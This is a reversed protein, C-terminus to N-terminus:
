GRWKSQKEQLIDGHKGVPHVVTNENVFAVNDRLPGHVGFAHSFLSSYFLVHSHRMVLHASVFSFEM